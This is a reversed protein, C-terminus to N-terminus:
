GTLGQFSGLVSQVVKRPLRIWWRVTRMTLFHKRIGLSFLMEVEAWFREHEWWSCGLETIRWSGEMGHCTSPNQQRTKSFGDRGWISSTSSGWSRRVRSSELKSWGSLGGSLKSQNKWRKGTSTPPLCIYVLLHWTFSSLYKGREKAMSGSHLGLHQQSRQQWPTSNAQPEIGEM